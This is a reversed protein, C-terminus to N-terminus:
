ANRTIPTFVKEWLKLDGKKHKKHFFRGCVDTASRFIDSDFITAYGKPFILNFIIIIIM